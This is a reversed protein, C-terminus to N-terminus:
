KPPRLIPSSHLAAGQYPTWPAFGRPLKQMKDNQPGLNM